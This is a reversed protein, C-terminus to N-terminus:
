TQGASLLVEQGLAFLAPTALAGVGIILEAGGYFYIASQGSKRVLWPIMRGGAWAGAALGLMFVSLVVSLVPTIIGFYAFALRTWIMQYVLSCFGSVFFLFYLRQKNSISMLGGAPTVADGREHVGFRWGSKQVADTQSVAVSRSWVPPQKNQLDNM